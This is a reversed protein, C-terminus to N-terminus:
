NKDSDKIKTTKRSSQKKHIPRGDEKLNHRIAREYPLSKIGKERAIEIFKKHCDYGSLTDEHRSYIGHADLIWSNETDESYTPIIEQIIRRKAVDDQIPFIIEIRRDMNRQMWDASGIYVDNAGNAYFLFIRSHELFRGILSVVKINESLGELGPRLCCIGRVILNIKVGAQSAEYLKDILVQDALANIKAFIFGNKHSKQCQIEHDIKNLFFNRLELPAVVLKSLPQLKPQLLKERQSLINFGTLLNFLINIDNSFFKCASIYGIDVYSRATSSNYNGTSLHVYRQLTEDEKRVILTMKCHTKLGIFGYVVHVGAQEMRRAWSINNNEDFRAKLEVVATVQKGLKAAQILSEIIPSDGSTRYLTQKIALVKPDQAASQLLEIVAYFSDYPHHLLLDRDKIIEFISDKGELREPLRPNFAPFKFDPRPLDYLIQLDSLALPGEVSYIDQEELCLQKQLVQILDKPMNKEVELRVVEAQERAQVEIQISSMLDIVEHELLKIDLNRTVRVAYSALIPLGFFLQDLHEKILSELLVYGVENSYNPLDILRPLISPVEVFAIPLAARKPQETEFVVLLYLRRNALFPFPHAPDVALPTLIPLVTDEYFQSLGAKTETLLDEIPKIFIGNQGLSQLIHGKFSDYIEYTLLHAQESIKQLTVEVLEKDLSDNNHLGAKLSRKKGAVRVMFFEDLNSYTITLFRVAELLPTRSRKSEQLVRQNFALWSLERNIYRTPNSSLNLKRLKDANM